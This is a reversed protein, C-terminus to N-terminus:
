SLSNQPRHSFFLVCLLYFCFFFYFIPFQLLRYYVHHLSLFSNTNIALGRERGWQVYVRGNASLSESKKRDNIKSGQQDGKNGTTAGNCKYRSNGQQKAASWEKGLCHQHISPCNLHLVPCSWHFSHWVVMRVKAKKEFPYKSALFNGATKEM